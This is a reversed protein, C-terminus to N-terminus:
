KGAFLYRVTRGALWILVGVVFGMVVDISTAGSFLAVASLLVVLAALTNGLWYLLNGLRELM